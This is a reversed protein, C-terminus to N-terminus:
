ALALASPFYSAPGKDIIELYAPNPNDATVTVNGTGANRSYTMVLAVPGIDAGTINSCISDLTFPVNANIAPIVIGAMSDLYQAGGLAAKRVRIQVRDAAVTSSALGKVTIQYARGTRFTVAPSTLAVTEATVAAANTTRAIFGVNGYPQRRGGFVLDNLVRTTHADFQIEDNALGAATESYMIIGPSVAGAVHAPQLLLEFLGGGLDSLSVGGYILGPTSTSGLSLGGNSLSADYNVGFAKGYAVFGGGGGDLSPSIEALLTTGDMDYVYLHGNQLRITRGSGDSSRVKLDAFEATGDRRITWGSAGSVFNPSKIAPRVLAGGGGIIANVFGM